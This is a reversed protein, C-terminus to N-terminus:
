PHRPASSTVEVLALPNSGQGATVYEVKNPSVIFGEYVPSGEVSITIAGTAPVVNYTGTLTQNQLTGGPGSWTYTSSFTAAGSSVNSDVQSLTTSLYQPLSGGLYEGSFSADSFPEASQPEFYTVEAGSNDGGSAPTANICYGNNSAILYCVITAGSTLTFVARSDPSVVYTGTQTAQVFTGGSNVDEAFSINGNGTTEFQLVIAESKPNGSNANAKRSGRGIANGNLSGQNFTGSQRLTNEVFLDGGADIDMLVMESSSIVYVAENIPVGDITSHVTGRGNADFAPSSTVTGTFTAQNHTGFDNIDEIGNSITGGSLKFAGDAALPDGSLDEGQLGFAWNGAVASETFDAPDQQRLVGSGWVGSGGSQNFGIIRMDEANATSILLQRNIGSITVTVTGLGNSDISYTGGSIEAHTHGTSAANQDYEGGTINGNGDATISFAAVFWSGADYGSFSGAYQGNLTGNADGTNVTVNLNQAFTNNQADTVKVTLNSLGAAAPTGSILGTSASLSLGTPLSGSLISWSYPTAGGNATLLANFPTNVTGSLQAPSTIELTGQIANVTLSLNATATGAPSDSDTAKVTFTFTGTSTPKGSILGSSPLPNMGPPLAGSTITWTYPPVGGNAVLQYSYAVNMTGDPLTTSLVGVAPIPAFYSSIDMILNTDTPAYADISDNGAGAPVIAMNSTVAGDAANLTSVVPQTQGEPWLSLFELDGHPVVTANLAFAQAVNPIGCLSGVIGIPITGNFLGDGSRTDLIRCPTLTFLSLPSSASSAPAFYGNVDLLLNTDNSAFFATKNESGAPVIAANAVYTGTYDNLTSVVPQAEGAPWVSLYQVQGATPLVTVDFSYAAANTPVGCTPPILYDREMNAQLPGDDGSRTDVIRCPPLTFFALATADSADDFYADIDILVNTTNTVYASVAGGTGAPVLAANAKVRGDSNMLSVLPQTEGTPWITLYGVPGGNVPVLTVNLSYAQATALSFPTCAGNAGGSQALAPLDFSMFSGGQIPSGSRTDVLRCPTVNRLRLPTQANTLSPIGMGWVVIGTDAVFTAAGTSTNLTYLTGHPAAYLLGNVYVMSDIKSLGTNGIATSVGTSTNVSYLVSGSGSDVTLYLVTGNSSLGSTSSSVDLGTPGVLTAAGNAANISYLNNDTGIGYLSSVTAGLDYYTLSGNGVATLGGNAPNVLYLTHTLGGAIFLSNGFGGMGAPAVGSNGLQTFAGSSLNLTGFAGTNTIAYVTSQARAAPQIALFLVLGILSAAANALISSLTSRRNRM